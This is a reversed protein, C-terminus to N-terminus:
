FLIVHGLVSTKDRMVLNRIIEKNIALFNPMQFIYFISLFM